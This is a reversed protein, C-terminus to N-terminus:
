KEIYKLWKEFFIKGSKNYYEPHFQVGIIKKYKDYSMWIQNKHIIIKKWKIPIKRIYDHHNFSYKIDNITFPKTIKLNKNYRHIKINKFSNISNRGYLNKIIWQYGYCIGLIPIGLNLIKKPLTAIIKFTDLIRDVSGSLIIGDINNNKIFNILNTDYWKKFYIKVNKNFSKKFRKIYWKTEKKNRTMLIICIKKM